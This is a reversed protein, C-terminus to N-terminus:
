TGAGHASARHHADLHFAKQLEEASHLGAKPEVCLSAVQDIRYASHTALSVDLRIDRCALNLDMM